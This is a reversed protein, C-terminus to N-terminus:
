GKAVKPNSILVVFRGYFDESQLLSPKPDFPHDYWKVHHKHKKEIRARARPYEEGKDPFIKHTAGFLFYPLRLGDMAKLLLLVLFMMWALVRSCALSSAFRVYTFNHAHFGSQWLQLM